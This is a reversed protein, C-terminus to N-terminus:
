RKAARQRKARAPPAADATDETAAEPTPAPTKSRKARSPAATAPAGDSSGDTSAAPDEVAPVARSRRKRVPKAPADDPAPAAPPEARAARKAARTTVKEQHRAQREAVKQARETEASDGNDGATEEAADSKASRKAERATVKEQHRAQRGALKQARDTESTSSEAKAAAAVQRATRKAARLREKEATQAAEAESYADVATAQLGKPKSAKSEARTHPKPAPAPPEPTAFVRIPAEAGDYTVRGGESVELLAAAVAATVEPPIARDAGYGGTAAHLAAIELAPFYHVGEARAATEAAIRLVAKGLTGAALVHAPSATAPQPEPSVMLVVEIGPNLGRLAAVGATLDAVTEELTLTRIRHKDADFRREGEDAWHPFVAGDATAEWVEATSLAVLLVRARRFASRVVNLHREGLVDFERDSAAAYRLNPRFPDVVRGDEHWRDEQPTFTRAAREVLQRFARASDIEGWGNGYVEYELVEAPIEALLAHRREAAVASFGAAILPQILAAALKGGVFAILEAKRLLPTPISAIEGAPRDLATAWRQRPPLPESAM